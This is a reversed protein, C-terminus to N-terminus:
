EGPIYESYLKEVARQVVEGVPAKVSIEDFGVGNVRFGLPDAFTCSV